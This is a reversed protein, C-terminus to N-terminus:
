YSVRCWLNLPVMKLWTTHSQVQSRPGVKPIRACKSTTFLSRDHCTSLVWRQFTHITLRMEGYLWKNRKQATESFTETNLVTSYL